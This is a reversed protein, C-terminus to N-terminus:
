WKLGMSCNVKKLQKASQQYIQKSRIYRKLLRGVNVEPNEAVAYLYYIGYNTIPKKRKIYFKIKGLEYRRGIRTYQHAQYSENVISPKEDNGAFGTAVFMKDWEPNEKSKIICDEILKIRINNDAKGYVELEEMGKLATEIDIM